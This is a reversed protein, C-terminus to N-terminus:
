ADNAVDTRAPTTTPSTIRAPSPGRNPARSPRYSGFFTAPDVLTLSLPSPFRVHLKLVFTQRIPRKRM